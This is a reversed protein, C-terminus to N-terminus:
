VRERALIITEAFSVRCAGLREFLGKLRVQVNTQNSYLVMRRM